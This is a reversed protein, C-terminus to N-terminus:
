NLRRRSPLAQLYDQHSRKAGGTNSKSDFSFMSSSSISLGSIKSTIERCNQLTPLPNVQRTKAFFHECPDSGGRKQNM